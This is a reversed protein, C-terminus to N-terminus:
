WHARGGARVGARGRGSWQRVRAGRQRRRARARRGQAALTPSPPAHRSRCHTRSPRPGAQSRLSGERASRDGGGTGIGNGAGAAAERARMSSNSSINKCGRGRGARSPSSVSSNASTQPTNDDGVAQVCDEGGDARRSPSEECMVSVDTARTCRWCQWCHARRSESVDQLTRTERLTAEAGASASPAERARGAWVLTRGAPRHRASCTAPGALPLRGSTNFLSMNRAQITGDTAVSAPLQSPVSCARRPAAPGHRTM